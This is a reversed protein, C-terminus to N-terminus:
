EDLNATFGISRRQPAPPNMLQRIAALIAGIARDSNLVSFLM